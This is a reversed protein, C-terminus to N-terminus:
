RGSICPGLKDYCSLVKIIVWKPRRRCERGVLGLHQPRVNQNRISRHLILTPYILKVIYGLAPRKSGPPVIKNPFLDDHQLLLLPRSRPQAGGLEASGQKSAGIRRRLVFLSLLAVTLHLSFNDRCSRLRLSFKYNIKEVLFLHGSSPRSRDALRDDKNAAQRPKNHIEVPGHPGLLNVCLM